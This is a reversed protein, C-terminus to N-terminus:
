GTKTKAELAKQRRSRLEDLPDVEVSKGAGLGRRALVTLGLADCYKLLTPFSTNDHTPVCPRGNSASADELAWDVITDWADIKRALAYLAEVAGADVGSEDVHDAAEVAKVCADFVSM